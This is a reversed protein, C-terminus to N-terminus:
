LRRAEFFAAFFSGFIESGQGTYLHVNVFASEKDAM